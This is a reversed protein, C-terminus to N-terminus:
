AKLTMEPQLESIPLLLLHEVMPPFRASLVMKTELVDPVFLEQDLLFTIQSLQESSLHKVRTTSQLTILRLTKM